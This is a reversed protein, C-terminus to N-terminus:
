PRATLDDYFAKWNDYPLVGLDHYLALREAKFSAWLGVLRDEARQIQAFQNLLSTTVTAVRASQALAHTGGAPPAIMDTLLEDIVRGTLEYRRQESRYARSAEALRRIRRSVRLELQVDSDPGVAGNQTRPQNERAIRTANALVDELRGRNAEIAGVIPQGGVIVEGLAPLRAILKHFVDLTRKPNRHWNHADEFVDRFAAIEQRDPIVEARPTLGLTTKFEDLRDCFHAIEDALRDKARIVSAGVMDLELQSLGSSEGRILEQYLTLANEQRAIDCRANDIVQLRRLLDLYDASPDRFAGAAGSNRSLFDQRFRTFDGIGNRAALEAFGKADLVDISQAPGVRARLLALTYVREWTLFEPRSNESLGAIEKDSKPSQAPLKPFFISVLSQAEDPTMRGAEAIQRATLPPPPPPAEQLNKVQPPDAFSFATLNCAAVVLM